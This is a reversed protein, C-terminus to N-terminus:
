ASAEALPLEFSFASGKGEQSQVHLESGHASLILKVLSLGLGTGGFRRTPSGDLQHFPEFIEEMREAPIGIGTDIVQILARGNTRSAQLRVKGGPATFKVANDILQFLV